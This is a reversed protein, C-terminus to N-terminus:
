GLLKDIARLRTRQGLLLNCLSQGATDARLRLIVGLPKKRRILPASRAEDAASM